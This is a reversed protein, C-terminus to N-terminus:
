LEARNRDRWEKLFQAAMETPGKAIIDLLSPEGPCEDTWDSCCKCEFCVTCMLAPDEEAIPQWDHESM